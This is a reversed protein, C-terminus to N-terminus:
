TTAELTRILVAVYDSRVSLREGPQKYRSLECSLGLQNTLERLQPLTRLMISLNGHTVADDLESPKQRDIWQDTRDLTELLGQLYQRLGSVLWSVLGLIMRMMSLLYVPQDDM